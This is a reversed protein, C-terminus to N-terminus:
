RGIEQKEINLLICCTDKSYNMAITKGKTKNM